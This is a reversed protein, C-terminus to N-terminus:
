SLSKRERRRLMYTSLCHKRFGLGVLLPKHGKPSSKLKLYILLEGCYGVCSCICAIILDSSEKAMDNKM